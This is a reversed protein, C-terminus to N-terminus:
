FFSFRFLFKSISIGFCVMSETAVTARETGNSTGQEASPGVGFGHLVEQENTKLNTAGIDTNRRKEVREEVEKAKLNAKLNAQRHQKASREEEEAQRQKEELVRLAAESERHKEEAM